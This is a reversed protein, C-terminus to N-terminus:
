LFEYDNELGLPLSFLYLFSSISFGFIWYLFIAARSASWFTKLQKLLAKLRFYHLLRLFYVLFIDCIALLLPCLFYKQWNVFINIFPTSYIHWNKERSGRRLTLKEAGGCVFHDPFNKSGQRTWCVAIKFDMGSILNWGSIVCGFNYGRYYARLADTMKVCVIEDRGQTFYFCLTTLIKLM